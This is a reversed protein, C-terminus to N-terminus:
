SFLSFLLLLTKVMWSRTPGTGITDGDQQFNEAGDPFTQVMKLGLLDVLTRVETQKINDATQRSWEGKMQNIRDLKHSHKRSNSNIDSKM